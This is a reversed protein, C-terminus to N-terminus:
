ALTLPVEASLAAMESVTSPPVGYVAFASLLPSVPCDGAQSGQADPILDRDGGCRRSIRDASRDGSGHLRSGAAGVILPWGCLWVTVAPLM